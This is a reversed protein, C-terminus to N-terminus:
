KQLDELTLLDDILIEKLIPTVKLMKLDKIKQILEAKSSIKLGILDENNILLNLNGELQVNKVINDKDTQIRISM